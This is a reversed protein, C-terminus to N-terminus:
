NSYEFVSFRGSSYVVRFVQPVAIGYWGIDTNWWVLYVHDYSKMLALELADNVSTIYYIRFFDVPLYLRTWSMLSHHVLLTSNDSDLSGLWKITNVMDNQDQLPLTSLQMTSPFYSNVRGVSFVAYNAPMMMFIFSLIIAVAITTSALHPFARFRYTRLKTLRLIKQSNLTAGNAAYFTFPYSLMYMWRSWQFVAFFPTLLCGFTFVVLIVLLVDLIKDRFFGLFVLPLWIVFLVGFLGLVDSLLNFYTPYNEMPSAVNLYNEMFFLNFPHFSAAYHVSEVNPETAFGTGILNTTMLLFITVVPLIALLAKLHKKFSRSKATELIVIGFVAAILLASVFEHSFVVLFSLLVFMIMGKVKQTQFILPLTLMLLIMALSNRYLDWSIRLVALQFTFIVAVLLGKQVGWNLWKRSFVYVACVNLAYLLPATLKLLLFPDVKTMAHTPILFLYLMWTSLPSAWSYQFFTGSHYFINGTTISAAYGVTDFGIAHPYSLIEPILRITFGLLFCGISAEVDSLKLTKEFNFHLRNM